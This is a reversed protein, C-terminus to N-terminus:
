LKIKSLTELADVREQDKQIRARLEEYRKKEEQESKNKLYYVYGTNGTSVYQKSYDVLKQMLREENRVGSIVIKNGQFRFREPEFGMVSSKAGRVSAFEDVWEQNPTDSLELYLVGSDYDLGVIEIPVFDPPESADVVQRKSADLKQLSVFSNQRSILENKIDQISQPRNNPNQQIMLSVLEDLYGHNESISSIPTIGTGQPVEGTFMENLLLGLSYIDAMHDVKHGKVKQEPAAYLFNALRAAAKTEVATVIEEESFHAIGFDAVVLSENDVLVNEPKIDRHWVGLLHAAEIGNLIKSFAPLVDVSSLSTIQNRLTSSYYPMIYFPCKVEDKFSVGADLVRIINEHTNNQCFNLENKFRRIKDSTIREHSLTKAAFISDSSDLVEYVRGSGGEGIKKTARYTEFPTEFIPLKSSM